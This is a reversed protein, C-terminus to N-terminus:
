SATPCDTVDGQVAISIPIWHQPSKRDSFSQSVTQQSGDSYTVVVSKGSQNDNYGTALLYAKSWYGYPLYM